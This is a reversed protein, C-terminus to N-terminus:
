KTGSKSDSLKMLVALEQGSINQTKLVRRERDKEFLAKGSFRRWKYDFRSDIQVIQIEAPQYYYLASSVVQTVLEVFSPDDQEKATLAFM